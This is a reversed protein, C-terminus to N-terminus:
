RAGETSLTGRPSAQLRAARLKLLFQAANVAYSAYAALALLMLGTTDLASTALAALYATHLALVLMSVMDEWYFSPAFLYRGFVDKEWISGTVMIAYLVLTKVVISANAASAGEGTALTRLVLGLSVLFVLFQLPALIGQVLTWASADRRAREAPSYLPRRPQGGRAPM